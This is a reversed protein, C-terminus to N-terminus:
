AAKDMAPVVRECGEVEDHDLVELMREEFPRHSGWSIWLCTGNGIVRGAIGNANHIVDGTRLTLAQQKTM